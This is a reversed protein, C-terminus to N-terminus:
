INRLMEKVQKEYEKKTLGGADYMMFFDEINSLTIDIYKIKKSLSRIGVRGKLEYKTKKFQKKTIIGRDYYDKLRSVDDKFDLVKYITIDQNDSWRFRKQHKKKGIQWGVYSGLTFLLVNAIM